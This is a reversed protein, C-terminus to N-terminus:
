EDSEYLGTVLDETSDGQRMIKLLDSFNISGITTNMPLTAKDTVVLSAANTTNSPAEAPTDATYLKGLIIPTAMRNDLFGVVVCDGPNFVNVTGPNCCISAMFTSSESGGSFPMGPQEFIPLRIEILSQGVDLRKTVYGLTIM